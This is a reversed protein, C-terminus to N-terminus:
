LWAMCGCNVKEDTTMLEWEERLGGCPGMVDERANNAGGGTGDCGAEAVEAAAVVAVELATTGGGMATVAGGEDVGGGSLAGYATSDDDDDDDNDVGEKDDPWM